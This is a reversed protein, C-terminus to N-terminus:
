PLKTPGSSRNAAARGDRVARKILAYIGWALFALLVIVMVTLLVFNGWNFLSQEV